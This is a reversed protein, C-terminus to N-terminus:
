LKENIYDNRVRKADYYAKTIKKFHNDNEYLDKTDTLITFDVVNVYYRIWNEFEYIEKDDNLEITINLKKM